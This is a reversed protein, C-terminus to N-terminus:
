AIKKMLTHVTRNFAAVSHDKEIKERAAHAVSKRLEPNNLGEIIGNALADETPEVLISNSPSLVQTHSKIQTAVVARGSDMYSYIKMPTNTGQTRPSVLLSAQSMWHGIENVPKPGLFSVRRLGLEQSHHTYKAIDEDRGGILVLTAESNNAEVKAWCDILLDIGQYSELNGIYMVTHEPLEISAAAESHEERLSVDGLVVVNQAGNAKATNGLDECMPVVIAAKKIPFSELWRFVSTLPRFLPYKDTLQDSLSSDMDYIFPTRTWASLVAAIFSAEELAHIVNYSSRRVLSIAKTILATDCVLKRMSFGPKVNDFGFAYSRHFTVNAIQVPDGIDFCVVDIKHGQDSLAELLFKLAIPTGREQYFPLPALVLIDM